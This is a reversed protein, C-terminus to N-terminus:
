RGVAVTLVGAVCLLTGALRVASFKEGLFLVSMVYVLVFNLALLPYARSLETSSLVRLWLLFALGYLVAGSLVGPSVLSAVIGGKVGAKILVQGFSGLVVSILGLIM